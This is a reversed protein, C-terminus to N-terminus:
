SRREDSPMDELYKHIRSFDVDPQDLYFEEWLRDTAAAVRLPVHLRKADSVYLSVDKHMIATRAGQRYRRTLINRPFKVESSETRGTSANLVEIMQAMDLGARTGFVVAESTIALSTAAVINNALKMAQGLGVRDGMVFLRSSIQELVPRAAAIHEPRGAAMISLEGTSAKAVGGSVPADVYALGAQEAIGCCTQAPGIGVTSLEVILKVRKHPSHAIARTVDISAQPTPLSLCIVDAVEAVAAPDALIRVGEGDPDKGPSRALDSGVTPFKRSMVASMPGGMLGLGVFGVTPRGAWPFESDPNM